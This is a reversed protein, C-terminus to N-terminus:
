LLKGVFNMMEKKHEMGNQLLETVFCQLTYPTLDCLEYMGIRPIIHQKVIECYRTYTRHKSTPCVYNALWGELWEQYKM